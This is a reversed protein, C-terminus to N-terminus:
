KKNRGAGKQGGKFGKPKRSEMKQARNAEYRAKKVNKLSTDTLDDAFSSGKRRKNGKDHGKFIGNADDVASLKKIKQSRKALRAQVLMVKQLEKEVRDNGTEKKKKGKRKKPSDDDDMDRNKGVKKKKESQVKPALQLSKKELKREEKSQFWDRTTTNKESKGNKLFKEARNARNTEFEISKEAWEENLIEDIDPQISIVKQRFKELINPPVTRSKVTNKAKKIVEKVLKRESEGALSVSVGSRGARATRGVRHIYHELTAPMVFNIVTQVGRIDLGRAAVDTAVLVDLTEDKFKKLAELRQPQTMNGHLEGCKVGMLGLLIHLRHAQKKTQVFVMTHCHFTRLILAALIPERDGERGERIRIFEQRLNLAVEKNNDVFIRVPKNLSVAALDEVADTMTASFLMTQRTRSCQRVIEKMQEAFYEDLMRDAEDLILIEVSDLSFSPTNKLHDILRGPTAVVIDPSKRLEAEQIKIDLGGVALAIEIKTSQALQKAVQFVQVGLERTPVLVLVRTVAEGNPKFLLRELTPLMFAATKGTGTAACACIDRGSLAVPIAAAQIKTPHVFNLANIAKLLQRSLKMEYFSSHEETTPADEFFNEEEENKKKKIKKAKERITDNKFDDDSLLDDEENESADEAEDVNEGDENKVEKRKSANDKIKRRKEAIKEDLKSTAKRKVYKAWHEQWTDNNYDSVNSAFKFDPDFDIKKTKKQKSPQFLEEEDTEDSFDQVEEDEVITKIIDKKM